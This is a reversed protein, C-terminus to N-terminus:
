TVEEQISSAPRGGKHSVAGGSATGRFTPGDGHTININDRRTESAADGVLPLRPASCAETDLLSQSRRSGPM